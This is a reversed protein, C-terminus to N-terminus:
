APRLSGDPRFASNVAGEYGPFGGQLGLTFARVGHGVYAPIRAIFADTSRRPDFNPRRADEFVANVMRVNMLLGEARAGPYTVAGNIHWRGKVIAVRTSPRFVHQDLVAQRILRAARNCKTRPNAPSADQDEVAADNWAIVLDLSPIVWLMRM